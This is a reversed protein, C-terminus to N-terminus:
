QPHECLAHPATGPQAIWGTEGRRFLPSAFAGTIPLDSPWEAQWRNGQIMAVAVAVPMIDAARLLALGARMSRGTCMVDDAVLVRRGRLRPLMRPDLWMRRGATPSTVSAVPVSLAEDYWLKQSFGAAVWNPHALARAVGAAVIHGLTPLGLVADADHRAAREAMWGTLRDVVAFSAQNVILGAVASEGLDRLPLLLRSGNPMPAAYADSWERPEPAAAVFHQWFDTHPVDM